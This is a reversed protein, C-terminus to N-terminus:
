DPLDKLPFNHFSAGQIFLFLGAAPYSGSSIHQFLQLSIGPMRKSWQNFFLSPSILDIYGYRCRGAELTM